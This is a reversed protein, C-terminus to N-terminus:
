IVGLYYTKMYLEQPEVWVNEATWAIGAEDFLGELKEEASLDKIVTYLDVTVNKIKKYTTRDALFNPEDAVEYCIYPPDPCTPYRTDKSTWHSYFVPYGTRDLLTCLEQLTM